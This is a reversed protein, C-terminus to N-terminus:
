RYIIKNNLEENDKYNKFIIDNVEQLFCNKESKILFTHHKMADTQFHHSCLLHTANLHQAISDYCQAKDSMLTECSQIGFHKFLIM